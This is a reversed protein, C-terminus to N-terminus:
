VVFERVEVFGAETMSEIYFGYIDKWRVAEAIIVDTTDNSVSVIKRALDDAGLISLNFRQGEKRKTTNHRTLRM